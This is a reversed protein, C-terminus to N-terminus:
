HRGITLVAVTMIIRKEPQWQGSAKKADHRGRQPPEVDLHKTSPWGAGKRLTAERNNVALELVELGGNNRGYRRRMCLSMLYQDRGGGVAAHDCGERTGEDSIEVLEEVRVKGM